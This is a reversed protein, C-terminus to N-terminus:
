QSIRFFFFVWVKHKEGFVHVVRSNIRSLLPIGEECDLNAVTHNDRTRNGALPRLNSLSVAKSLLIFRSPFNHYSITIFTNLLPFELEYKIYGRIKILIRGKSVTISGPSKRCRIGM